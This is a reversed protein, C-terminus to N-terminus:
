QGGVGTGFGVGRGAEGGLWGEGRGVFVCGGTWNDPVPPKFTGGWMVDEAAAVGHVPGKGMSSSIQPNGIWADALPDGGKRLLAARKGEPERLISQTFTDSLDTRGRRVEPGPVHAKGKAPDM